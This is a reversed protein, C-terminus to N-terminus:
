AVNRPPRCRRACRADRDFQTETEIGRTAGQDGQQQLLGSAEFAFSAEAEKGKATSFALGDRRAKGGTATRKALGSDGDDAPAADGDVGGGEGATPKRRINGGRNRKKFVAAPAAAAVSPAAGEEDAM